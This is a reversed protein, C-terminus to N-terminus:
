GWLASESKQADRDPMRWVLAQRGTLDEGKFSIRETLNAEQQSRREAEAGGDNARGPRSAIRLATTRLLCTSHIGTSRADRDLCSLRRKRPIYRPIHPAMSVSYVSGAHQSSHLIDTTNEGFM